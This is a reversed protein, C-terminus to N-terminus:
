NPHLRGTPTPAVAAPPPSRRRGHHRRQLTPSPALPPPRAQPPPPPGVRARVEPPSATLHGPWPPAAAGIPHDGAGAGGHAAGWAPADISRAAPGQAPRPLAAAQPAAVQPAAPRCLSPLPHRRGPFPAATQSPPPPLRPPPPVTSTTSGAAWSGCAPRRAGARRGSLTPDDAAWRGGAAAM